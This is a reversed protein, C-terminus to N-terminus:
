RLIDNIWPPTAASFRRFRVTPHPQALPAAVLRDGDWLAPSTLLTERPAPAPRDRLTAFGRPGLAAIHLGPGPPPTELLWRGDWRRTEAPVAPAARAPERRIAVRDRYPRLVCGHLTLGQGLAPLRALATELSALRPPYRAGSTWGLAGALLRLRLEEPAAAFPIPDLLLDGAGGPALCAAALTATGAELAARARAMRTATAALRDPGLGLGALHPLAARARVRDFRPDANSPDDAWPVGLSTLWDRLTARRLTLFPRLWPLGEATTAPAMAALGDVGSGRALRLLFTEAQDDLTHGLAVAPLARAAAWGAILRRRATRANDQLNGTAPHDTWRLTDHPISRTACLAAVAAAEAASAPRLGHDVTVAAVPRGTAHLALLLALSDSGGSVAVGVPGPPLPALAAALPPPLAPMLATRPPALPQLRLTRCPCLGM